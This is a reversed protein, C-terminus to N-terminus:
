RQPPRAPQQGPQQLSRVYDISERAPVLVIKELQQDNSTQMVQVVQQLNAVEIEINSLPQNPQQQKYREILNLLDEKNFFFPIVQEDGRQITLYGKDTGGSAYFLPVGPFQQVQQGDERLLALASDVQRQMPVLDFVVREPSDKSSEAMRYVEGLPVPTVKVSSALQPNQAKLKEIFALADQQSIFVGTVSSNANNDQGNPVSAVLPAGDPNTITFVPVQQLKQMVQEESLAMAPNIGVFASGVVTSGLIGLAISWRFLSNRLTKPLVTVLSRDSSKSM